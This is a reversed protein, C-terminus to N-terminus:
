PWDLGADRGSILRDIRLLQALLAETDRQRERAIRALVDEAIPAIASATPLAHHGDLVARLRPVFIWQLWQTFELTDHCFPVESALREPAPSAAEWLQLQRLEQEVALLAVLLERRVPETM